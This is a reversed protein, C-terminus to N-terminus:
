PATENPSAPPAALVGERKAPDSMVANLDPIIAAPGEVAYLQVGTFRATHLETELEDPRHFYAATFYGRRLEPNNQQGTLYTHERM